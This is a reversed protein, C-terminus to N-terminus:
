FIGYAAQTSAKVTNLPTSCSPVNRERDNISFRSLVQNLIMEGGQNKPIITSFWLIVPNLVMKRGKNEPIITSFWLNAPNLIM